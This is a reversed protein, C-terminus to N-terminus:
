LVCDPAPALAAVAALVNPYSLAPSRIDADVVAAPDCAAVDSDNM